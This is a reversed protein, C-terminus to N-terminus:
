RREAAASPPTLPMESACAVSTVATSALPTRALPTRTTHTSRHQQVANPTTTPRDRHLEPVTARIQPALSSSPVAAATRSSLEANATRITDRLGGVVARSKVADAQLATIRQAQANQANIVKLDNESQIRRNETEAHAAAALQVVKEADWEAQVHKKGVSYGGAGILAFSLALGVALWVRWNLLALM